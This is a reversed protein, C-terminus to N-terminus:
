HIGWWQSNNGLFNFYYKEHGSLLQAHIIVHTTAFVLQLIPLYWWDKRVLLHQHMALYNMTRQSVVWKILRHIKLTSACAITVHYQKRQYMYNKVLIKLVRPPVKLFHSKL